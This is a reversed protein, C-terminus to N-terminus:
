IYSMKFFDSRSLQINIELYQFSIQQTKYSLTRDQGLIIWEQM